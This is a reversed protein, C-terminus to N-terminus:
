GGLGSQICVVPVAGCVTAFIDNLEPTGKKMLQDWVLEKTIAILTIISFVIIPSYISIPLSIVLGASFHNIKDTEIIM